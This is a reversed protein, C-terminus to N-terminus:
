VAAEKDTPGSHVNSSMIYWLSESENRANKKLKKLKYFFLDVLDNLKALDVLNREKDLCETLVVDNLLNNEDSFKHNMEYEGVEYWVSLPVYQNDVLEESDFM